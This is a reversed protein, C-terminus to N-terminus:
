LVMYLNYHMKMFDLCKLTYNTLWQLSKSWFLDVRKVRAQGQPCVLVRFEPLGKHTCTLAHCPFEIHTHKLVSISLCPPQVWSVRCRSLFSTVMLSIISLSRHWNLPGSVCACVLVCVHVLNILTNIVGSSLILPFPICKDIELPENWM